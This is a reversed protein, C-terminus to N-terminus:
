AIFEEYLHTKLNILDTFFINLTELNQKIREPWARSQFTITFFFIHRRKLFRSIFINMM